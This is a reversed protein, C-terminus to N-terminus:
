RPMTMWRKSRKNYKFYIKSVKSPIFIIQKWEHYEHDNYNFVLLNVGDWIYEDSNGCMAIWDLECVYPIPRNAIITTYEVNTEWQVIPEMENNIFNIVNWADEISHLRNKMWDHSEHGCIVCKPM